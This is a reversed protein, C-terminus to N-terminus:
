RSLRVIVYVIAVLGIILIFSVSRIMRIREHIKKEQPWEWEIRDGGVKKAEKLVTTAEDLDNEAVVLTIGFPAGDWAVVQQGGAFSVSIGNQELANKALTAELESSFTALPILKM